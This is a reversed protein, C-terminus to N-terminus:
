WADNSPTINTASNFQVSNVNSSVQYMEMEESPYSRLIEKLAKADQFSPDLWMDVKDRPVIVPMRDHITQVLDNAETTIITCSCIKDGEPSTWQNYLGAFGFPKGSKLRIYHPVKKQKKKSWEYFGDAIILCRQKKFAAKFSPKEDITEARANIMRNGESLDKVWPPLFGWRCHLLEREGRDNIILIEQSPAINYSPPAGSMTSMSRINFIEGILAIPSSRVFRGCMVYFVVFEIHNERCVTLFQCPRKDDYSAKEIWKAQDIDKM